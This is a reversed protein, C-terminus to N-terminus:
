KRRVFMGVLVRMDILPKGYRAWEYVPYAFLASSLAICHFTHYELM